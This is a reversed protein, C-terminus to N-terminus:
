LNSIKHSYEDIQHQIFVISADVEKLLQTLVLIRAEFLSFDYEEDYRFELRELAMDYELEIQMTYTSFLENVANRKRRIFDQLKQTPNM